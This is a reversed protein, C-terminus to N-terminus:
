GMSCFIRTQFGFSVLVAWVWIEFDTPRARTGGGGGVVGVSAVTIPWAGASGDGEVMGVSALTTPRAGAGGGGEVMGVFALTTPGIDARDEM